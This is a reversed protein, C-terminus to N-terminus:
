PANLRTDVHMAKAASELDHTASDISQCLSKLRGADSSSGESREALSLLDGQVSVLTQRARGLQAAASGQAQSLLDGLQLEAQTVAEQAQTFLAAARRNDFARTSLDYLGAVFLRAAQMDVSAVDVAQKAAIENVPTPQQVPQTQQERKKGTLVDWVSQGRAAPVALGLALAVAIARKM